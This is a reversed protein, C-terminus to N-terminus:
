DQASCMECEPVSLQLKASVEQQEPCIVDFSQDYPIPVKHNRQQKEIYLTSFSKGKNNIMSQYSLMRNKVLISKREECYKKMESEVLGWRSKAYHSVNFSEDWYPNIYEQIEFPRAIEWTGEENKKIYSNETECINRLFLLGQFNAEIDGFSFVGLSKYGLKGFETKIGDDTIKEYIQETSYKGTKLYERYKKYYSIGTFFFHDLKDLGTYVGDLNMTRALFTVITSFLIDNISQWEFSRKYISAKIYEKKSVSAKPYIEEAFRNEVMKEIAPPPFFIPKKTIRFIVNAFPKAVELTLDECSMKSVKDKNKNLLAIRKQIKTNILSNFNTSVDPLNKNLTLFQDTEAGLAIAGTFTLSINGIFCGILTILVIMKFKM